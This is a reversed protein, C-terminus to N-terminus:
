QINGDMLEADPNLMLIYQGKALTFGQNNAGSFGNNTKNEVLIVDPYKSRIEQPTGDASANDVVIIEFPPLCFKKVSDIAACVFDKVNYSVIVATVIPTQETNM